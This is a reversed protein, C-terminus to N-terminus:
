DVHGSTELIAGRDEVDVVKGTHAFLTKMFRTFEIKLDDESVPFYIDFQIPDKYGM